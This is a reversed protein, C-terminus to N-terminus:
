KSSRAMWTVMYSTVVSEFVVIGGIVSLATAVSVSLALGIFLLCLGFWYTIENRELSKLLKMM